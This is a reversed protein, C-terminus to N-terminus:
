KLSFEISFIAFNLSCKYQKKNSQVLKISQSLRKCCFSLFSLHDGSPAFSTFSCRGKMLQKSLLSAPPFSSSFTCTHPSGQPTPQSVAEARARINLLNEPSLSFTEPALISSKLCHCLYHRFEAKPDLLAIPSCHARKASSRARTGGSTCRSRITPGEKIWKHSDPKQLTSSTM